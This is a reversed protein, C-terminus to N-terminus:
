SRKQGRSRELAIKEISTTDFAALLRYDGGDFGILLPDAERTRVPPVSRVSREVVKWSPVEAVLRLDDFVLRAGQILDRITDPVVGGFVTAIEINKKPKRLARLTTFVDKYQEAILHPFKTGYNGSRMSRVRVGGERGNRWGSGGQRVRVGFVVKDGDIAFPVLRPFGSEDRWSLCELDFIPMSAPSPVMQTVLTKIDQGISKIQLNLADASDREVDLLDARLDGLRRLERRKEILMTKAQEPDTALAQHGLGDCGQGPKGQDTDEHNEDIAGPSTPRPQSFRFSSRPTVGVSTLDGDSVVGEVRDWRPTREPYCKLDPTPALLWADSNGFFPCSDCSRVGDDMYRYARQIENLLAQWVKKRTTGDLEASGSVNESSWLRHVLREADSM